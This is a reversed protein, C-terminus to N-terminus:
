ENDGILKEIEILRIYGGTTRELEFEEKKIEVILEKEIKDLLWVIDENMVNYKKFTKQIIGETM